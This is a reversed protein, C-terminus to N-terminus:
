SARKEIYKADVMRLEDLLIVEDAEEALDYSLVNEFAAVQVKKGRKKAKRVAPIFDADGSVLLITDCESGDACDSVDLALSVDVGKQCHGNFKELELEFGASEISKLGSSVGTDPFYTGYAKSCRVDRNGALLGKMVSFDIHAGDIGDITSHFAKIVNEADMFIGVSGQTVNHIM